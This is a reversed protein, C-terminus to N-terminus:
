YEKTTWLRVCDTENRNNYITYDESRSSKHRVKQKKSEKWTGGILKM